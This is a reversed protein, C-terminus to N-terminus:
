NERWMERVLLETVAMEAFKLVNTNKDQQSTSFIDSHDREPFCITTGSGNSGLAPGLVKQVYLSLSSSCM